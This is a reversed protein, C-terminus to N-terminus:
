ARIDQIATIQGGGISYLRDVAQLSTEELNLAMICGPENLYAVASDPVATPVPPEVTVTANGSGDATAGEVVRVLAHWTLGVVSDETATWRFGIYDGQSLVFSDPLGELAIESDGDANITETWDSCDGDFGSPLGTEMYERPVPRAIDRGIFRRTAGRMGSLWARWEDSNEIPMRTLTYVAQWLPFGAQVGAVRGSAEPAAYDIRQLEFEQFAVYMDPMAAPAKM